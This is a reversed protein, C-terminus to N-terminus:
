HLRDLVIAVSYCTRFSQGANFLNAVSFRLLTPGIAYGFTNYGYLNRGDWHRGFRLAALHFLQVELGGRYIAESFEDRISQDSWTTFIAALANEAEGSDKYKLLSKNLEGTAAVSVVESELINWALGVCLAQPLPGKQAADGYKVQPGLNALAVGFSFGPSLGKHAWKSWPLTKRLSAPSVHLNSLFGDYLFGFDFAYGSINDDSLQSEFVIYPNPVSRSYKFGMGFRVHEGSKIAAAFALSWEQPEDTELDSGVDSFILRSGLGMRTYAAALWLGNLWNIRIAGAVHSFRENEFFDQPVLRFTNGALAMRGCRTLAAPNYYIASAEASAAVFGGGMGNAAASPSYRLVPFGSYIPMQAQAPQYRAEIMIAFTVFALAVRPCSRFMRSQM